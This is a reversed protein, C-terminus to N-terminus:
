LWMFHDQGGRHGHDTIIGVYKTGDDKIEKLVKMLYNAAPNLESRDITRQIPCGKGLSSSDCEFGIDHFLGDFAGATVIETSEDSGGYNHLNCSVIISQAERLFSSKKDSFLGDMKKVITASKKLKAIYQKEILAMRIPIWCQSSGCQTSINPRTKQTGESKENDIDPPLDTM